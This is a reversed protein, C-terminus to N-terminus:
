KNDLQFNIPFFLYFDRQYIKIKLIWKYLEKCDLLNIESGYVKM